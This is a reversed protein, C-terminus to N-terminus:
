AALIVARELQRPRDPDIGLNERLFTYARAIYLSTGCGIVGVREGPAPLAQPTATLRTVPGHGATPSRTFRPM